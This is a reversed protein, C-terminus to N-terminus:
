NSRKNDVPEGYWLRRALEKLSYYLNMFCGHSDAAAAPDVPAEVPTPPVLVPPEDLIELPPALDSAKLEAKHGIFDAQPKYPLNKPTGTSGSTLFKILKGAKGDGNEGKLELIPTIEALYKRVETSTPLPYNPGHHDSYIMQKYEGLYSSIKDKTIPEMSDLLRKLKPNNRLQETLVLISLPTPPFETPITEEFNFDKNPAIPFIKKKFLTPTIPIPTEAISDKNFSAFPDTGPATPDGPKKPVEPAPAQVVDAFPEADALIQVEKNPYDQDINSWSSDITDLYYSGNVSTGVVRLSVKKDELDDRYLPNLTKGTYIKVDRGVVAHSYKKGFEILQDRIQPNYEVAESRGEFTNLVLAPDGTKLDRIWFFLAKGIVRGSDKNKLHAMQIFTNQVAELSAKENGGGLATCAGTYNGQFLDFGPQRKWLKIELNENEAPLRHLSELQKEISALKHAVKKASESKSADAKIGPKLGSVLSKLVSESLPQNDATVFEGSEGLTINHTKLNADIASAKNPSDSKIQSLLGSLRKQLTKTYQTRTEQVFDISGPYNMWTDYNLEVGKNAFTTKFAEKTKNNAKGVRTDPNYLYETYKGALTAKCVDLLDTKTQGSFGKLATGLSNIYQLDWKSIADDTINAVEVGQNEFFAKIFEKGLKELDFQKATIMASLKKALLEKRNMSTFLQAFEAFKIASFPDKILSAAQHLQNADVDTKLLEDVTTLLQNLKKQGIAHKLPAVGLLAIANLIQHSQGRFDNEVKQASPVAKGAKVLKDPHKIAHALVEQYGPLIVKTFDGGDRGTKQLGRLVNAVSKLPLGAQTYPELAQDFLPGVPISQPTAADTLLKATLTTLSSSGSNWPRLYRIIQDRFAPNQITPIALLAFERDYKRETTNSNPTHMLISTIAHAKLEDDFPTLLLGMAQRCNAHNNAYFTTAVAVKQSGHGDVHKLGEILPLQYHASAIFRTFYDNQLIPNSLTLAGTVVALYQKQQAAETDPYTQVHEALWSTKKDEPIGKFISLLDSVSLSKENHEFVSSLLKLRDEPNSPLQIINACQASTMKSKSTLLTSAVQLVKSSDIGQAAEHIVAFDAAASESQGAAGPFDEIGQDPSIVKALVGSGYLADKHGDIIPTVGTALLVADQLDKTELKPLEAVPSQTFETSALLLAIGSKRSDGSTEYQSKVKALNENDLTNLIRAALHSEIESSDALAITFAPDKLSKLIKLSHSVAGPTQQADHFLKKLVSKKMSVNPWDQLLKFVEPAEAFRTTVMETLGEKLISDPLQPIISVALTNALLPGSYYNNEFISKLQNLQNEYATQAELFQPCAAETMLQNIAAQFEPSNQYGATKSIADQFEVMQSHGVGNSNKPLPYLMQLVTPMAIRAKKALATRAQREAIQESTLKEKVPQGDYWKSGFMVPKPSPTRLPETLFNGPNPMGPEADSAKKAQSGFMFAKIKIQPQNLRAPAPPIGRM